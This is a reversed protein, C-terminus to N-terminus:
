GTGRRRAPARRRTGGARWRRGPSRGAVVLDRDRAASSASRDVDRASGRIATSPTGSSSVFMATRAARSSASCWPTSRPTACRSRCPCGPRPRSPRRCRPRPRAAPRRRGRQPAQAGGVLVQELQGGLEAAVHRERQEAARRMPVPRPSITVGTSVRPSTSTPPGRTRRPGTSAPPRGALEVHQVSPRRHRRGRSGRRASPPAARARRRRRSPAASRLSRWSGAARPQSGLEPRGQLM